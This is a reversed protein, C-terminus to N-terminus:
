ERGVEGGGKRRQQWLNSKTKKWSGKRIKRPMQSRYKNFKFTTEESFNERVVWNLTVEWNSEIVDGRTIKLIANM